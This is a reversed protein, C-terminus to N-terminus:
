RSSGALAERESAWTRSDPRFRGCAAASAAEKRATAEKRSAQVSSGRKTAPGERSSRSAPVVRPETRFELVVVERPAKAASTAAVPRSGFLSPAVKYKPGRRRPRADHSLEECLPAAATAAAEAAASVGTAQGADAESAAAAAQAIAGAVAETKPPSGAGPAVASAETTAAASASSASAAAPAALVKMAGPRSVPMFSAWSCHSKYSAASPGLRGPARQGTSPRSGTQAAPGLFMCQRPLKRSAHAPLAQVPKAVSGPRGSAPTSSTSSSSPAATSTDPAATSTDPSAGEQRRVPRAAGARGWLAGGLLLEQDRSIQVAPAVAAAPAGPAAPAPAGAQATRAVPAPGEDEDFSAGDSEEDSQTASTELVVVSARACACATHPRPPLPDALATSSTATSAANFLMSRVVSDVELWDDPNPRRNVAPATRPRADFGDASM